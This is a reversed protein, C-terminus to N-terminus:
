ASAEGAESRKARFRSRRYAAESKNNIAHALAMQAAETPFAPEEASCVLARGALVHPTRPGLKTYSARYLGFSKGEWQCAARRCQM